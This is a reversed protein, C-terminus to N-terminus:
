HLEKQGDQVGVASRWSVRPWGPRRRLRRGGPRRAPPVLRPQRARPPQAARRPEQVSTHWM